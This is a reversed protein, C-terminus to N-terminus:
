ELLGKIITRDLTKIHKIQSLITSMEATDGKLATITYEKDLYDLVKPLWNRWEDLLKSRPYGQTEMAKIKAIFFEYQNM